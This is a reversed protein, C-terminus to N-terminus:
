KYNMPVEVLLIKSQANTQIDFTKCDTIEMADRAKLIANNVMIEGDILFLYVGNQPRKLQYNITYDTEFIGLSL